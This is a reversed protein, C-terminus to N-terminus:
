RCPLVIGHGLREPLGFGAGSGVRLSDALQDLLVVDAGGALQQGLRQLLPVVALIERPPLPHQSRRLNEPHASLQIDVTSRVKLPQFIMTFRIPPLPNRKKTSLKEPMSLVQFLQERLKLMVGPAAPGEKMTKVSSLPASAGPDRM